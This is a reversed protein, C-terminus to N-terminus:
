NQPIVSEELFVGKETWFFGTRNLQKEFVKAPVKPLDLELNRSANHDADAAHSCHKCRFTKGKRNARNVYGCCNCRQSRFKNPMEEICFGETESLRELKEKILPYSWASLFRNTRHGKRVNKLHELRIVKVDTFNLQNISWNIFNKRHDQARQFGKSGKKCRGLKKLVDNLSQNHSNKLTSQGDSLTLVTSIGQDAGVTRGTEKKPAKERQYILGIRKPSYLAVASPKKSFGKDELKKSQKTRRVPIAVTGYEGALSLRVIETGKSFGKGEKNTTFTKVVDPRSINISFNEVAPCSRLARIEKRLRHLTKKDTKTLAEKNQIKNIVWEKKKIKESLSKVIGLAQNGLSSRMMGGIGLGENFQSLFPIDLFKPAKYLCKSPCFDNYGETWVRSVVRQTFTKAAEFFSCLTEEKGKNPLIDV